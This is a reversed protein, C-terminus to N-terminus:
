RDLFPNEKIQAPNYAIHIYLGQQSLYCETLPLKGERHMIRIETFLAANHFPCRSTIDAAMGRLHYSTKSGGVRANLEPCRYGSTVYIPVGWRERLPDLVKDILEVMLPVAGASPTNDIGCAEATTSRTLESLKFYSAGRKTGGPPSSQNVVTNKKTTM